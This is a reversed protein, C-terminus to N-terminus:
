LLLLRRKSFETFNFPDLVSDHNLIVKRLLIELVRKNHRLTPFHLFVWSLILRLKSDACSLHLVRFALFNKQFKSSFYTKLEQTIKRFLIMYKYSIHINNWFNAVKSSVVGNWWLVCHKMYSVIEHFSIFISNLIWVFCYSFFQIWIM